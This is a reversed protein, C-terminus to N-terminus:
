SAVGALSAQAAEFRGCACDAAYCRGSIKNHSAKAHSCVCPGAAVAASKAGTQQAVEDLWVKYPWMKRQGFPYAARLALAVEKEPKGRTEALVREIIPRAQNRWHGDSM